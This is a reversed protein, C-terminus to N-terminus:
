LFAAFLWLPLVVILFPPAFFILLHTFSLLPFYVRIPLALFAHFLFPPFYVRLPLFLFIQFFLRPSLFQPLLYLARLFSLSSSFNLFLLVLM